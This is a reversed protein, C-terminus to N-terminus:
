SNMFDTLRIIEREIKHILPISENFNNNKGMQELEFSMKQLGKAGLNGSAGKLSHATKTILESDATKVAENLKSLCDKGLEVLDNLLEIFFEEDGGVRTLGDNVDILSEPLKSLDIM